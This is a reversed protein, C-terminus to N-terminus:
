IIYNFFLYSAVSNFIYKKKINYPTFLTLITMWLTEATNIYYLACDSRLIEIIFFFLITNIKKIVKDINQRELIFYVFIVHKRNYQWNASIRINLRGGNIFFPKRDYSIRVLFYTRIEDQKLCLIQGLCYFCLQIYGSM